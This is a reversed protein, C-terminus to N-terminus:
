IQHTGTRARSTDNGIPIGLGKRITKHEQNGGKGQKSWKRGDCRKPRVEGGGGGDGVNKGGLLLGVVMQAVLQSM